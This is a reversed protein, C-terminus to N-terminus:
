RIKGGVLNYLVMYFRDGFNGFSVAVVVVSTHPQSVSQKFSQTKRDRYKISFLLCFRMKARIFRAQRIIVSM